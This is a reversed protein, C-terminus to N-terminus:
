MEEGLLFLQPLHMKESIEIGDRMLRTDLIGLHLELMGIPTIIHSTTKQRV